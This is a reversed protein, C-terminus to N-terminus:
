AASLSDRQRECGRLSHRCGGCIVASSSEGSPRRPSCRDGADCAAFAGDSHDSQDASPRRRTEGCGEASASLCVSRLSMEHPSRSKSPAATAAVPCSVLQDYTGRTPVDPRGAGVRRLFQRHDADDLPEVRIVHPGPRLGAISFQGDHTLTFNAFRIATGLISRSWTLAL